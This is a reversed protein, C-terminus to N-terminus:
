SHDFVARMSRHRVPVDRHTTALMNVNARIQREIEAIPIMRVGAAALEIALPMGAVHQCIRVIATLVVDPLALGPQIQTARQVFLQVASYDGLDALHQLTALEPVDESPYALGSVDFLWETQLHLRERSTVLMTIHPAHALMAAILDIEALLHEFTDLVLLMHRQRLEDLLHKLPDSQGAFSLNLTDGIATIIQNPTEVAALAAFAVGDPFAAAHEEAVALGLRTKGIGGPGLLTLLRCAPDDLIRGIAALEAARGVFSTPQAPLSNMRNRVRSTEQREHAPQAEIAISRDSSSANIQRDNLQEVAGLALLSARQAETIGALSTIQLREYPRSPRLTRLPAGTLSDWVRMTGDTSGSVILRGDPSIAVSWITSTHGELVAVCARSSVDWLRVTGDGSGSALLRGDTSLAISWVGSTHGELVALGTASSVDWLRVTGDTSGSVLTRGDASLAVSWIASTHGELIALCTASSVDWLRVTHDYSGSALLRGDRAVAISMVMDSHGYLTALGAASQVGRHLGIPPDWLRITGDYSASALLGGDASWGVSRVVNTHGELTALNMGSRVDWLRITGDASGSALLEGDPSFAAGVVMNTHGYLTRLSTGGLTDWLQVTGDMGGSALLRGDPAVAVSM